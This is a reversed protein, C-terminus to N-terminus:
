WYKAAIYAIVDVINNSVYSINGIAFNASLPRVESITDKIVTYINDKQFVCCFGFDFLMNNRSGEIAATITENLIQNLDKRNMLYEAAPSGKSEGFKEFLRDEILSALRNQSLKLTKKEESM